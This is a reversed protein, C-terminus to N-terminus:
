TLIKPLFCWSTINLQNLNLILFTIPRISRWLKVKLLYFNKLILFKLNKCHFDFFYMIYNNIIKSTFLSIKWYLFSYKGNSYKKSCVTLSSFKYVFCPFNKSVLTVQFFPDKELIHFIKWILVKVSKNSTQFYWKKRTIKNPKRDDSM